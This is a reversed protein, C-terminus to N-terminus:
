NAVGAPGDMGPSYQRSSLPRQRHVCPGPPYLTQIIAQFTLTSIADVTLVELMRTKGTEPDFQPEIERDEFMKKAAALVAQEVTEILVTRTINKERCVQDIVASLNVAEDM